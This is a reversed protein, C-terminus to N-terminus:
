RLQAQVTPARVEASILSEFATPTLAHAVDAAARMAALTDNMPRAVEAVDNLPVRNDRAIYDRGTAADRAIRYRGHMVGVLPCFQRQNGQVFLFERDGVAFKPVGSVEMIDDGVQGGLFELVVEAQETGKLARDIAFTVYTKIMAGGGPREVRRAQVTTVQGRYVADASAVLQPFTPPEVSTARLATGLGLLFFLIFARLHM